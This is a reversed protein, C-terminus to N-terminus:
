SRSDVLTVVLASFPVDKAGHIGNFFFPGWRCVIVLFICPECGLRHWWVCGLHLVLACLHFLLLFRGLTKFVVERALNHLVSGMTTRQLSGSRTKVQLGYHSPSLDMTAGRLLLVIGTPAAMM